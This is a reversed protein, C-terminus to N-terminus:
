LGGLRAMLEFLGKAGPREGREADTGDDAGADEDEGPGGGGALVEFCGGDEVGLDHVDQPVQEAVAVDVTREHM